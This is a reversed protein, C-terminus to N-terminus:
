FPPEPLVVILALRETKHLLLPYLTAITSASLSVTNEIIDEQRKKEVTLAFENSEEAEYLNLKKSNLIDNITNKKTETIKKQNKLSDQDINHYMKILHPAGGFFGVVIILVAVVYYFASVFRSFRSLSKKIPLKIRNKILILEIQATTLKIASKIYNKIEVIGYLKALQILQKRYSSYYIKQKRNKM